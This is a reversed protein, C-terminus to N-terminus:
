GESEKVEIMQRTNRVTHLPIYLVWEYASLEGFIPFPHPALHARVPASLQEVFERVEKRQAAFRELTEDRSLEGSPAIEQPATAGGGGPRRNPMVQRLMQEKGATREAWDEVAPSALAQRATDLLAAESLLIHEACEGVSWRDPASKWTWQEESLGETLERLRAETEDLMTLIEAREEDSLSPQQAEAGDDSTAKGAASLPSALAVALAFACVAFLPRRLCPRLTVNM